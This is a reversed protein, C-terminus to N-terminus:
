VSNHLSTARLGDVQRLWLATQNWSAVTQDVLRREMIWASTTWWLKALYILWAVTSRGEVTLKQAVTPLGQRAAGLM